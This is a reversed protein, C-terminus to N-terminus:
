KKNIWEFALQPFFNQLTSMFQLTKKLDGEALAFTIEATHGETNRFDPRGSIPLVSINNGQASTGIAALIGQQDGGTVRFQPCTATYTLYNDILTFADKIVGESRGLEEWQGYFQEQQSPLAVFGLRSLFYNFAPENFGKFFKIERPDYKTELDPNGTYKQKFGFDLYFQADIGTKTKLLWLLINTGRAIANQIVEPDNKRLSRAITDVASDTTVLDIRQPLVKQGKETAVAIIQDKAQLPLLSPEEHIDDIAFEFLQLGRRVQVKTTENGLRNGRDYLFDLPTAHVALAQPQGDKDFVTIIGREALSSVRQPLNRDRASKAQQYVQQLLKLKDIAKTRLNDPLAGGSVVLDRSSVEIEPTSLEVRIHQEQGDPSAFLVYKTVPVDQRFLPTPNVLEEAETLGYLSELYRYWEIRLNNDPAVIRIVPLVQEASIDARPTSRHIDYITPVEVSISSAEIYVHEFNADEWDKTLTLLSNILEDTVVESQLQEILAVREPRLIRLAAEGIQAAEFRAGLGIALPAFIDLSIGANRKQQEANLGDYTLANHENDGLKVSISDFFPSTFAALLKKHYITEISETSREPATKVRKSKMKSLIDVRTGIDHSTLSRIEEITLPTDEHVDHWLATRILDFPMGQLALSLAIFLEHVLKEDGNKRLLKEAKAYIARVNELDQTLVQQMEPSGDYLPLLHNHFLETVSIHAAPPRGPIEVPHIRHWDIFAHLEKHYKDEFEVTM